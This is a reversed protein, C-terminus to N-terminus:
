PSVKIDGGDKNNWHQVNDSNDVVRAKEVKVIIIAIHDGVIFQQYDPNKSIHIQRFKNEEDSGQICISVHGNLTISFTKGHKEDGNTSVLHPFDHILIAVIPCESLQIYKKTDRRTALIIVEEQQYYSFNMLSLHPETGDSTAMHCLRSANLMEVVPGPLPPTIYDTNWASSGLSEGREKRKLKRSTESDGHRGFIFHVCMFGGFLLLGAM